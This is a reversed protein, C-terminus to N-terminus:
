ATTGVDVNEFMKGESIVPGILVLIEYPSEKSFNTLQKNQNYIVCIAWKLGKFICSPLWWTLMENWHFMNHLSDIIHFHSDIITMWTCALSCLIKNMEAPKNCQFM